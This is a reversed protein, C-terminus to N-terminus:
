QKIIKKAKEEAEERNRAMVTVQRGEIDPFFYEQNEDTPAEDAGELTVAKHNPKSM